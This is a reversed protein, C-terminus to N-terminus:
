RSGFPAGANRGQVAVGPPEIFSEGVKYVKDAGGTRFTIEGEIVTVFVQGPHTHLPTQAGPAFDLVAQAVEYPAAPLTADARSLYLSAPAPSPVAAGPQPTGPAAGKPIVMSGTARTRVTGLNLATGVVGPQETFSEGVRYVKEAGGTRFTQVGEIMTVLVLGPHTHAPTAAGPQAEFIFTVVEAPGAVPLGATRFQHRTTPAPPDDAAVAVPLAFALILILTALIGRRRM